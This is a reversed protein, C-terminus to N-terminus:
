AGTLRAVWREQTEEKALHNDSLTRLGFKDVKLLKDMRSVAGARGYEKEVRELVLIVRRWRCLLKRAAIGKSELMQDRLELRAQVGLRGNDGGYWVEVLQEVNNVKQALTLLPSFSDATAAAASTPAATSAGAVTTLVFSPATSSFSTTPPLAAASPFSITPTASHLPPVQSAQASPTSSRLLPSPAETAEALASGQQQIYPLVSQLSFPNKDGPIPLSASANALACISASLIQQAVAQGNEKRSREAVAFALGTVASEVATQLREIATAMSDGLQRIVTSNASTAARLDTLARSLSPVVQLIELEVPSRTEEMTTILNQRFAAFDSSSFPEISWLPLSPHATSVLAADQLLVVRIWRILELFSLAAQDVEGGCSHRERVSIEAQTAQPWLKSCLADPPMLLSRPLYHDGGDINFGALARVPQVAVGTLYRDVLQDGSATWRGHMRISTESCGAENALRASGGRM